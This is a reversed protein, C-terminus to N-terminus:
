KRSKSTTAVSASPVGEKVRSGKSLADVSPKKLAQHRLNTSDPEWCPVTLGLRKALHEAFQLVLVCMYMCVHMCAHTCVYVYMCVYM